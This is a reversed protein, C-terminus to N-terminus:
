DYYYGDDDNLFACRSRFSINILLLRVVSGGNKKNTQTHTHAITNTTRKLCLPFRPRCAVIEGIFQNSRILQHQTYRLFFHILLLEFSLLSISSTIIIYHPSFLNKNNNKIKKNKKNKKSRIAQFVVNLCFELSMPNENEKVRTRHFSM